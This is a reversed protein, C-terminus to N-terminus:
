RSRAFAVPLAAAAGLLKHVRFAASRPTHLSRWGAANANRVDAVPNDGIHLVRSPEVGEREAVLTFLGGGHKTCQLDASSYVEDYPDESLLSAFMRRLDAGSYWTDSVAVVRTGGARAALLADVLPANARLHEIDAEVEIDAIAQAAGADVGLASAMLAAIGSLTAERSSDALAVARYAADHSDWRLRRMAVSDVGVRRAVRTAAIAFRQTETTGDRLLVTDFVDTSLLAVGRLDRLSKYADAM